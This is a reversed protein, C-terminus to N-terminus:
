RPSRSADSRAEVLEGALGAETLLTVAEHYEDDGVLIRRPFVGISGEVISMNADAVHFVIGAEGLLSQVFSILVPDTTRVIERM